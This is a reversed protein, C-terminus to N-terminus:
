PAGPPSCHNCGLQDTPALPLPQGCRICCAGRWPTERRAAIRALRRDIVRQKAYLPNPYCAPSGGIALQGWSWCEQHEREHAECEEALRTRIARREARWEATLWPPAEHEVEAECAPCTWATLTTPGKALQVRKTSTPYDLEPGPPEHQGVRCRERRVRLASDLDGSAAARELSRLRADPSM